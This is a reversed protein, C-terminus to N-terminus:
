SATHLLRGLRVLDYDYKEGCAEYIPKLKEIGEQEMAALLDKYTSDWDVDKPILTTLEEKTLIKEDALREVHGWITSLAMDREKAIQRVTMGKQVFGKTVSYTSEAQQRPMKKASGGEPVDRTYTGGCVNVFDKHMKELDNEDMDTFAASAEDSATHFREDMRIIKPNVTLANANLGLIRMGELTRVRSLAVYGQGYTFANRLDIEAADLSMGQSKHVTIAWALRLPIQTVEGMVKGNEEMSWSSPVITLERGDSTEIVPYGDEANFRLVRGLTGNVYGAEFNNKTCMVMAEPKLELTEPSLCNKKLGEVVAKTGRSDMAFKKAIGPLSRQKEANMADVDKNHTFLRTPEINEFGIETQESLLTYHEEEVEGRRISSLLALLMEDEHRYQETLYCTLFNGREWANSEFAFRPMEGRGAIPPLQFFDGVLVVQMGGFVEERRRAARCVKDIMDLMRGDLMSIEDIVLVHTKQMRKAIRERGVIQEIDYPSLDDRAGIGSWAHITMGGIHTAAIGTSATVAVSVKCAELWAIYQNLVYTKGAGPEGTLFINGGTKLIQLADAQTM